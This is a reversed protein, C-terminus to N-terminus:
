RGPFHLAVLDAVLDAPLGHLERLQGEKDILLVHLAGSPEHLYLADRGRSSSLAIGWGVPVRVRQGGLFVPVVASDAPVRPPDGLTVGTAADARAQLRQSAVSRSPTSQQMSRKSSALWADFPDPASYVGPHAVWPARPHIKRGARSSM